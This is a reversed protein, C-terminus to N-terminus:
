NFKYPNQMTGEGTVTVDNRINIVPRLGMEFYTSSDNLKGTYSVSFPVADWSSSGLTNYYGSPTMTWFYDGTTIYSNPTEKQYNYAGDFFGGMNGALMVEDATILGIPYTLAKNGKTSLSVTYLDSTNECSLDPTSTTVRLYGNMYTTVTGTGVGTSLNLTGRDGCFGANTDIYSAYNALNSAYFSDNAIKITSATGLGHVEGSTYMYGVYMNNNYNTNFSSTGAQRDESAEGNPHAETGDYIMRITGDGNIRIIRWYYGAFYAYNNEVSGRYYYSTGDDDTTEFIGKEHSECAADDCASKTFDPTYTYVELNGLVTSVTKTKVFYLNCKTRTYDTANYNSYNGEFTWTAYDWSPVVGNTCSSSSEDLIYGSGQTPMTRTIEGDVYYAFYIDGPDQYEGNIVNFEKEETFVAYTTYLFVGTLLMVCCVTFIIIVKKKSNKEKFKELKM